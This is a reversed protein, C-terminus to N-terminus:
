QGFGGGEAGRVKKKRPSEEPSEMEKRKLDLKRPPFFLKKEGPPSPVKEQHFDGSRHGNPILADCELADGLLEPELFGKTNAQPSGKDKRDESPEELALKPDKNLQDKWLQETVEVPGPESEEKRARKSKEHELPEGPRKTAVSEKPLTEEALGPPELCSQKTQLHAQQPAQAVQGSSKQCSNSSSGQEQKDGQEPGNGRAIERAGERPAARRKAEAM